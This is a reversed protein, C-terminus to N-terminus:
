AQRARYRIAEVAYELAGVAEDHDFYIERIAAELDQVCRDREEAVLKTLLGELTCLESANLRVPAPRELLGPLFVTELWEAVGSM